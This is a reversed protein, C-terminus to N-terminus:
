RRPTVFRLRDGTRLQGAVPLDRPHIMAPKAYGGITGRDHLLVLPKGGSTVQVAGLSNGESLVGGGPVQPGALQLGMRDAHEVQFPTSSLAALAEPDAQPGPLIRVVATRTPAWAGAAAPWRLHPRFSFGPRPVRAVAAGLLDGARLPRGILGRVDVSASGFFTASEIGGAVALYGRAGQAQPPFELRDGPGALFSTFPPVVDGNLRATVGWGAFALVTATVAELVPGRANLELLPAGPANGLLLNALMASRADLPGTRALGHHAAGYRGADVILDYLGPEEVALVPRRPEAPLLELPSPESAADAAAAGAGKAGAESGTDVFRVRDGAALLFPRERHPDYVAELATGLQRWGGPSALPYVGTQADAIAVTNAEVRPRPQELRPLRISPDVAGMFPFGPTFGVAYVRYEVAAHRRAVEAAELGAADAVQQLDIGDYRVRLAVTRETTLTLQPAENGLPPANAGEVDGARLVEDSWRRVAAATLRSRDYELYLSAYSPIVETIGPLPAAALVRAAALVAANIGPDLADGFRLYVGAVARMLADYRSM